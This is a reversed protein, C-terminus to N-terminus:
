SDLKYLHELLLLNKKNIIQRKKSFRFWKLTKKLGKDLTIKEKWKPIIKKLLSINYCEDFKKHFSVSGGFYRCEEFIINSEIYKIKAKIKFTLFIKKAINNWTIKKSSVINIIDNYIKRNQMIEFMAEAADEAHLLSWTNLGKDHVIM